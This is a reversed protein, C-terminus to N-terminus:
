IQREPDQLDKQGYWGRTILLICLTFYVFVPDAKMNSASSPDVEEREEGEELEEEEDDEHMPEDKTMPILAAYAIWFELRKKILTKCLTRITYVDDAELLPDCKCLLFYIWQLCDLVELSGVSQVPNSQPVPRKETDAGNRDNELGDAKEAIEGDDEEAIEDVDEEGRSIAMEADSASTTAYSAVWEIFHKLFRLIIPQSMAAVIAPARKPHNCFLLKFHDKKSQITPLTIGLRSPSKMLGKRVREANDLTERIWGASPMIGNPLELERDEACESSTADIQQDKQWRKELKGLKGSNGAGGNQWEGQAATTWEPMQSREIQVMKIFDEASIPPSVQQSLSM